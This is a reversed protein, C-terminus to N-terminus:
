KNGKEGLRSSSASEQMSGQPIELLSLSVAVAVCRCVANSLAVCLTGSMRTCSRFACQSLTTVMIDSKYLYWFTFFDMVALHDNDWGTKVLLQIRIKEAAPLEFQAGSLGLM